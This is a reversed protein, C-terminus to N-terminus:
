SVLKTGAQSRGNPRPLVSFNRSLRGRCNEDRRVSLALHRKKVAQTPYGTVPGANSAAGSGFREAPSAPAPRSTFFANSVALGALLLPYSAVTARNHWHAGKAPAFQAVSKMPYKKWYRPFSAGYRFMKRFKSGLSWLEHHWLVSSIKGIVCGSATLRAYLDYDEGAELTTDVGGIKEFVDRRVWRVFCEREPVDWYILREFGRCAGWFSDFRSLEPCFLASAGSSLSRGVAEEVVWRPLEIDADLHFLFEGHARAAGRNRGEAMGPNDHILHWHPHRSCADRLIIESGDDSRGDLNFVVEINQYTQAEISAIL